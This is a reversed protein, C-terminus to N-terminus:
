EDVAPLSLKSCGPWDRELEGRRIYRHVSSWMWERPLRVLGHKVPNFHIYDVHRGWDDEDRITHEYFRRQWLGREGGRRGLQAPDGAPLAPLIRRTFLSKILRWLRSYDVGDAPRMLVHLHDPLLVAADVEYPM